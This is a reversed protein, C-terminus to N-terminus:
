RPEELQLISTTGMGSWGSGGKRYDAKCQRTPAAPSTKGPLGCASRRNQASPSRCCASGPNAGCHLVRISHKIKAKRRSALDICRGDREVAVVKGLIQKAAVREGEGRDADGRALLVREGNRNAIGMVRHGIVGRGTRYLVIDKM